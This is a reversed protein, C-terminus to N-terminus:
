RAQNDRHRLTTQMLGEALKRARQVGPDNPDLLDELGALVTQLMHDLEADSIVNKANLISIAAHGLAMGLIALGKTESNEADTIM